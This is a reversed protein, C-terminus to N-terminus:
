KNFSIVSTLGSHSILKNSYAFGVDIAGPLFRPIDAVRVVGGDLVIQIHKNEFFPFINLQEIIVGLGLMMLCKASSPAREKFSLRIV